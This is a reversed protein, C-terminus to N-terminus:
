RYTEFFGYGQARVLQGAIRGELRAM